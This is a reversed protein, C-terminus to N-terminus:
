EDGDRIEGGPQQEDEAEAPQRRLFRRPAAIEEADGAHEDRDSTVANPGRTSSSRRASRRAPRRRRCRRAHERRADLHRRHRLQDRDEVAEDPEGRHEHTERAVSSGFWRRSRRRLACGRSRSRRRRTRRARDREGARDDGEALQLADDAALRQQQRGPVDQVERHRRRRTGRGRLEDTRRRTVDRRHQRQAHGGSM